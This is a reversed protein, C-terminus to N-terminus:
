NTSVKVSFRAVDGDTWASAGIARLPRVNEVIEQEGAAAQTIQPELADINLFFVQSASGGDPVVDTFTGDDGLNGGALLDQRYGESPGIAVLGHSTESGLFALEGVKARLKDLVAEIKAPDGKVIAGIPLGSGDASNEAAEFDLDRSIAVAVGSGLLTEVDDPLDLGTEQSFERYASERDLM